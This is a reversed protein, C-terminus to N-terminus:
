PMLALIGSGIILSVILWVASLFVLTYVLITGMNREEGFIFSVLNFRFFAVLGWNLAGILVLILAILNVIAM